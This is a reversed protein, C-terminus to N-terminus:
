LHLNKIFKKYWLNHKWKSTLFQAPFPLLLFLQASQFHYFYCKKTSLLYTRKSDIKQWHLFQAKTQLCSMTHFSSLHGPLEFLILVEIKTHKKRKRRPRLLLKLIKINFRKKYERHKPLCLNNQQYSFICKWGLYM